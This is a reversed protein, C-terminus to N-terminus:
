FFTSGLALPHPGKPALRGTEASRGSLGESTESPGASSKSPPDPSTKIKGM